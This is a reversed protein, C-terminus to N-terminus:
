LTKLYTEYMELSTENKKLIALTTYWLEESFLIMYAVDVEMGLRAAIQTVIAHLGPLIKLTEVAEDIKPLLEDVSDAGLEKFLSAQYAEVM